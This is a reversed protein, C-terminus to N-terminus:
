DARPKPTAMAAKDGSASDGSAASAGSSSGSKKAAGPKFRSLLAEAEIMAETTLSDIKNRILAMAAVAPIGVILGWFTTVLATSIGAALQTPSPKGASAVIQEFALIMGYVTGFLGIMPGTAGLVNLWEMKRVRKTSELDGTEELAREMAGYGNSAESLAAHMMQGFISPDAGAADIAERFKKDTLLGELEAVTDVPVINIRRNALGFNIILAVTAISMGILFIIQASGFFQGKTYFWMGVGTQGQQTQVKPATPAAAAPAADQAMAYGGFVFLTMMLVGALLAKKFVSM